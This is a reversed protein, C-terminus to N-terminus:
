PSSLEEPRELLGSPRGAIGISVSNAPTETLKRAERLRRLMFWATKYTVGIICHLRQASIGKESSAMLHAALIWKNLPVKSREFVTGVTVSFQKRCGSCKRLGPRHSKGQLMYAKGALGCHPCSPGNPWRIKELHERAADADHYIPDTLDSM